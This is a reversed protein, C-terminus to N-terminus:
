SNASKGDKIEELKIYGTDILSQIDKTIKKIECVGDKFDLAKGDAKLTSNKRLLIIKM